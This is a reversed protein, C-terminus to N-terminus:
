GALAALRTIVNSTARRRIMADVGLSRGAAYVAFQVHVIALFMYNWPWEAPHRYLGLWLHLSYVAAIAAVLRVGIGLMLSVAFALEALFVLPDIIELYPLYVSKVLARHFAFAAHEGMQGTWYEFGGSVPLPLKWVCGQFWQAGILLRCVWTIAPGAGRQESDESWNKLAILVSAFLLVWFLTVMVYQFAGLARYDDTAGILFLWADFFPNTRM